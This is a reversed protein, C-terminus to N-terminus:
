KSQQEKDAALDVVGLAEAAPKARYLMKALAVVLATGTVPGIWDLLPMNAAVWDKIVADHVAMRGAIWGLLAAGGVIIIPWRNMLMMVIKSGWVIIPVSVVLGFVVLLLSDRSAAAIAIVNDLSMVADAIIITKIAGVLSTSADIHHEDGDEPRLMKVGIWLLLLAGVIKLYHIQLLQLAFFILIVRLIIAGFVGWFIAKNRQHDPLRRSALAIVVANDGGLVIDIAIIQLVAVWFLPTGFEM